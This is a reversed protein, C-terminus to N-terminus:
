HCPVHRIITFQSLSASTVATISLDDSESTSDQGAGDQMQQGFNTSVRLCQVQVVPLVRTSTSTVVTTAQASTGGNWCREDFKWLFLRRRFNQYNESAALFTM